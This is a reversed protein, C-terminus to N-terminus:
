PRPGYHPVDRGAELAGLDPGLGTFDDTVNPLYTGKDVAVAGARLRFDLNAADYLNQLTAVDQADLRPVNVFVDYDVLISNRDQAPAAPGGM